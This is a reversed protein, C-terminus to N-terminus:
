TLALRQSQLACFVFLLISKQDLQSTSTQSVLVVKSVHKIGALVKRRCAVLFITCYTKTPSKKRCFTSIPVVTRYTKTIFHFYRLSGLKPILRYQQQQQQTSQSTPVGIINKHRNINECYSNLDDLLYQISDITYKKFSRITEIM